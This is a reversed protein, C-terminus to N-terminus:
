VEDDEGWGPEDEWQHDDEAEEELWKAKTEAENRSKQTQYDADAADSEIKQCVECSEPYHLHDCFGSPNRLTLLGNCHPCLGSV